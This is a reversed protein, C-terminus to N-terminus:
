SINIQSHFIITDKGEKFLQENYGRTLQVTFLRYGACYSALHVNSQKGSGGVGILLANGRPMRIIRMIRTIHELAMEFLVLSLKTTHEANYLDLIDDFIVKIDDYRGLDEYLRPDEKEEGIRGKALAFDGFILPDRNAVEAAGGQFNSSVYDRIKAKVLTVDADTALRDCFVRMTENRFLRTIANEDNFKDVVVLCVGECVRSLDRLTFIYHFKAPTPPLSQVVFQFVELMAKTIKKVAEKAGDNFEFFRQTLISSLIRELVPQSPDTLNVINFLAYMRPTIPNRGGGPPGMAGIYDLDKVIKQNLDKDRDYFFGRSMLTQVWTLPQQTGDTPRACLKTNPSTLKLPSFIPIVKCADLRPMNLDDIFVCLRKGASPGYISGSRKDINSEINLQIDASTTRSSLNLLLLNYTQRDLGQMYTQVTLTKATGSTGVFLLPKQQALLELLFTYLISDTTPVMIHSYRFPNPQIYEPVRARWQEWDGRVMDFVFDYLPAGSPLNGGLGGTEQNVNRIFKDFRLRSTATLAGGLSWILAFMFAGDLTAPDFNVPGYFENGKPQQLISADMERASKAKDGATRKEQRDRPAPVLADLACCLQKVLDINPKPIVLELKADAEGKILGKLIFDMCVPVYGRFLQELHEAEPKLADDVVRGDGCRQKLWREFFPAYGVNQPDVWVMGCRSVTAPSAYQLDFVEILQCCHPQLRIREGNPLTLLRNDDMVSNMNEVWLADVDGDYILWRM